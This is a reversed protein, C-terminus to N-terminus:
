STVFSSFPLVFDVPGRSASVIPLVSALITESTWFPRLSTPETICTVTAHIDSSILECTLSQAFHVEHKCTLRVSEVEFADVVGKVPEVGDFADVVGKVPEVGDFADVVGKVPEVGDFADVVGKVPEVGDFADVVGKVPEVGDFADVVCKVPEVGVAALVVVAAVV